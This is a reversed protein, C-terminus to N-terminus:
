KVTFGQEGRPEEDEVDVREVRAQPPGQRCWEVLQEVADATGEFAAEVAGNPANRVWGAVGAADAQARCTDRFFVGQVEGHATVRRRILPM